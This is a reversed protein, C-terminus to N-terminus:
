PETQSYKKPNWIEVVLTSGFQPDYANGGIIRLTGSAPQGDQLPLNGEAILQGRRYGGLGKLSLVVTCAARGDSTERCTTVALGLEPGTPSQGDAEFLREPPSALSGGDESRLGEGESVGILNIVKSGSGNM